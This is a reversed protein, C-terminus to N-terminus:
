KEGQNDGNKAGSKKGQGDDAGTAWDYMHSLREMKKANARKKLIKIVIILVVLGVGTSVAITILKRKPDTKEEPQMEEMMPDMPEEMIMEQAFFSVEIEKTKKKSNADEYEVKIKATLDGTQFPTLIVDITGNAGSNCNGVWVDKSISAFGEGEIKANINSTVAKGKNVYPISFYFEEGVFAEGVNEIEGIEFRDPQVVPISISESATGKTVAKGSRYEYNFNITLVAAASKAEEWAKLDVKLPLVGGASLKDFYFSNSSSAVSIGEATNISMVINEVSTDKSTNKFSLNLPFVKGAEVKDGYDYNSIIINPTLKSVTEEEEKKPQETIVSPLTIKESDNGQVVTDGQVYTYSVNVSLELRDTEINKATKIKVPLIYPDDYEIGEVFYNSERGKISFGPGASVTIKVNKAKVKKNINKIAIDFEHEEKAKVAKIKDRVVQIIPAGENKKKKEEAEKTKEAPLIVNYTENGNAMGERGWYTYDLSVGIQLSETNIKDAAKLKVEVTNSGRVPIGTGDIFYINSQDKISLGDPVTVVLKGRNVGYVFSVNDLKLTLVFEQNAKVTPVDLRSLRIDPKDTFAIGETAKTDVVNGTLIGIAVMFIAMVILFVKTRLLFGNFVREKM